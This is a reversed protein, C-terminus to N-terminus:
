EDQLPMHPRCPAGGRVSVTRVERPLCKYKLEVTSICLEVPRIAGLISTREFPPYVTAGGLTCGEPCTYAISLVCPRAIASAGFHSASLAAGSSSGAGQRSIPRGAMENRSPGDRRSARARSPSTRKTIEDLGPSRFARRYQAAHRIRSITARSAIVGPRAALRNVSNPWRVAEGNGLYLRCDSAPQTMSSLSAARADEAKDIRCTSGIFWDRRFKGLILESEIEGRQMRVLQSVYCCPSFPECPGACM